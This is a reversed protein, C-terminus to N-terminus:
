EGLADALRPAGEMVSNFEDGRLAGASLGQSLQIIAASATAAETGSIQFTKNILETTRLADAQSRGLTDTAQQMRGYLTATSELATFTRQSIEYSRDRAAAYREESKTVLELRS